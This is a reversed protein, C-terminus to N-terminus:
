SLDYTCETYVAGFFINRNKRISPLVESTIWKRFSKANPKDSRLVVAYLGSETVFNAEGARSGLNLRTLEDEDLRKAVDTSNKIELAKCIDMLCFLPKGDIAVTRVEGFENNSFVELENM